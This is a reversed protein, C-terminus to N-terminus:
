LVWHNRQPRYCEVYFGIVFSNIFNNQKNPIM